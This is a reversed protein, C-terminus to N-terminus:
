VWGDTKGAEVEDLEQEMEATFKVDVIKGFQEKMLRTVTEGVITPKLAKGEREM